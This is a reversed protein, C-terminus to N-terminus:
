FDFPLINNPPYPLLHMVKFAIIEEGDIFRAMDKWNFSAKRRYIDLPGPPMDPIDDDKNVDTLIYKDESYSPVSM